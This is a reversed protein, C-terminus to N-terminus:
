LFMDPPEIFDPKPPPKPKDKDKQNESNEELLSRRGSPNKIAELREEFFEKEKIEKGQKQGVLGERMWELRKTMLEGRKKGEEKRVYTINAKKREVELRESEKKLVSMEKDQSIKFDGKKVFDKRLKEYQQRSVSGYPNQSLPTGKGIKQLQSQTIPKLTKRSVLSKAFSEAALKSSIKKINQPINVM